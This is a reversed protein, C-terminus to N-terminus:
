WWALCHCGVMGVGVLLLVSTAVGVLLSVCGGCVREGSM